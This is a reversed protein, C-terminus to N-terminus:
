HFADKFHFAEQVELEPHYRLFFYKLVTHLLVSSRFELATAIWKKMWPRVDYQPSQLILRLIKSQQYRTTLAVLDNDIAINEQEIKELLLKVALVIENKYAEGLLFKLTPPDCYEIIKKFLKSRFPMELILIAIGEKLDAKLEDSFPQRIDELLSEVVVSKAHHELAYRLLHLEEFAQTYYPSRKLIELVYAYPYELAVLVCKTYFPYPITHIPPLIKTKGERLSAIIQAENM